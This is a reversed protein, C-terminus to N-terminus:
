SNDALDKRLECVIADKHHCMNLMMLTAMHSVTDVDLGNDLCWYSFKDITKCTPCYVIDGESDEETLAKTIEKDNM